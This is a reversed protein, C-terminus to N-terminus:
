DPLPVCRLNGNLFQPHKAPGCYMFARYKKFNFYNVFLFEQVGFMRLKGFEDESDYRHAFKTGFKEIQTIYVHDHDIRSENKPMLIEWGVTKSM